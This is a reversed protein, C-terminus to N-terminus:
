GSMRATMASLANEDTASVAAVLMLNKVPRGGNGNAGAITNQASRSSPPLTDCSSAVRHIWSM